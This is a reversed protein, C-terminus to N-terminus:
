LLGMRSSTIAIIQGTAMNVAFRVDALGSRVLPLPSGPDPEMPFSLSVSQVPAHPLVMAEHATLVYRTGSQRGVGVIGNFDFTALLVHEGTEPSRVLRSTITGTGTFKVPEGGSPASATDLVPVKLTFLQGAGSVLPNPPVAPNTTASQGQVAGVLGVATLGALLLPKRASARVAQSWFRAFVASLAKM